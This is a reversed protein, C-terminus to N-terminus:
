VIHIDNQKRKFQAVNDVIFSVIINIIIIMAQSETWELACFLQIQESTQQILEM